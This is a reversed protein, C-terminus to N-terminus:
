RKTFKGTADHVFDVGLKKWPLKGDQAEFYPIEVGGVVLNNRKKAVEKDWMGYTSDYKLLHTYSELPGRSQAAVIKFHPNNYAIRLFVRGIRGLGNLAIRIKKSSEKAM